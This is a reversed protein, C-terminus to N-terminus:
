QTRWQTDEQAGRHADQKSIMRLAATPFFNLDFGGDSAWGPVGFIAVPFVWWPEGKVNGVASHEVIDKV